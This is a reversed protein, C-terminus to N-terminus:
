LSLEDFAEQWLNGAKKLSLLIDIFAQGLPKIIYPIDHKKCLSQVMPQVKYFNHRPMTPFLHHEIQFNLHGTFWDNFTSKSMNCTARLQLHLWSDHKDDDHVDMVIHNCQAVWIFWASEAIRYFYWFAICAPISRFAIYTLIFHYTYMPLMTALDFWLKRKIVHKFTTMQFYIPFILPAIFPFFYHQITYPYLFKEKNKVNKEAKRSPLHKGLVFIPDMKSDPDKDIVNPKAHHQLHMHNWWHLSGGKIIGLWFYTVYANLKPSQFISSHGYDHMTWSAQGQAIILSISALTLPLLSCGYNLLIYYGLLHFFCIQFAQLSFFTVSPKFLNMKVALQRLCEFDRKIESQKKLNANENPLDSLQNNNTNMRSESPIIRGIQHLKAYKMVKEIDKHFATFPETADQGAYHDILKAGGPHKFRFKTLNYVCDNIVLWCDTKTAHKEVEKWSILTENQRTVSPTSTPTAQKSPLLPPNRDAEKQDLLITNESGKGM